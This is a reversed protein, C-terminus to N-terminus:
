EPEPVIRAGARRLDGLFDAYGRELHQCGDITSVGHAGLAAVILVAAARLDKAALGRCPSRPAGPEIALTPGDVCLRAGLRALERAYDFRETWVAERLMSRGVAKTLMLALLPQNDSYIGQSTVELTLPRLEATGEPVVIRSEAIELAVGIRELVELETRLGALVAERRIRTLEVKVGHYAAVAIWTFIETMDAVLEHRVPRLRSVPEVTIREDTAEIAVGGARLFAVLETVDPKKYPNVVVSPGRATAALLLATKTAGSVLPGTVVDKRSSFDAIDIRTGRLSRASARLEGDVVEASAGFRRMVEAVHEVPRPEGGAIACGGSRGIRVRGCRALLTPALYLTGHVRGVLPGVLPADTVNETRITRTDGDEEVVAGLSALVAGLVQVDAIRPVNAITASETLVSAALLPVAAHKFGSVAVSAPSLPGGEIRLAGM